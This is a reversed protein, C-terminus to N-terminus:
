ILLLWQCASRRGTTKTTRNNEKQQKDRLKKFYKAAPPLIRIEAM